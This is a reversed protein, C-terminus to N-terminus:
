PERVIINICFALNCKFILIWTQVPMESKNGIFMSSEFSEGKKGSPKDVIQQEFNANVGTFAM